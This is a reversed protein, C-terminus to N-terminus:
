QSSEERINQDTIDLTSHPKRKTTKLQALSIDDTSSDDEDLKKMMDLVATKRMKPLGLPTTPYHATSTPSHKSTMPLNMPSTPTTDTNGAELIQHVSNVDSENNKLACSTRVREEELLDQSM